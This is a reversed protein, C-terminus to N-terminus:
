EKFNKKLLKYELKAAKNKKGKAYTALIKRWLDKIKRKM